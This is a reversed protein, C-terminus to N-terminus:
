GPARNKEVLERIYGQYRLDFARLDGFVEGFDALRHDPTRRSELLQLYTRLESRYDTMLLHFLAWGQAYGLLAANDNLRWDDSRLLTELPILKGRGKLQNLQNRLDDIRQLNPKGLGQWDGQDTPECYCALGEALWAPVHGNRNLLGCNFSLQHAAEHMITTTNLDRSTDKAWRDLADLFLQRQRDSSFRKGELAKDRRALLHTNSALDYIVLRNTGPHYIGTIDAPMKQGLYAEFGKPSDFVALMLRGPPPRLSFGKAKFHNFFLDYILECNRLRQVTYAEGANSLATFRKSDFRSLPALQHDRRLIQMHRVFEQSEFDEEAAFRFGSAFLHCGPRDDTDTLVVQLTQGVHPALNWAYERAKGQWKPLLTSGPVWGQDTRVRKPLPTNEAGAVLIELRGDSSTGEKRAAYATCRLLGANPPVIFVYRLQGTRRPNGGDSSCVGLNRSPGRPDATTLYFGDGEWGKLTATHLDLNWAPPSQGPYLALALTLAYLPM